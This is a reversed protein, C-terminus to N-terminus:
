SREPNPKRNSYKVDMGAQSHTKDFEFDVYDLEIPM